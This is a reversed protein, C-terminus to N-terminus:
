ALGAKVAYIAAKTRSPAGLKYLVNAVHFKATHESIYLRRAILRNTLGEALLKVVELERPSLDLAGPGPPPVVAPAKAASRAHDQQAMDELLALRFTTTESDM